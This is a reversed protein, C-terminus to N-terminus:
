KVKEVIETVVWRKLKSIPISEEITVKDGVKSKNKEDHAYFKAQKKLYKGYITHKKIGEVVIVRTKDMKDSSVIGTKTRKVKQEAM